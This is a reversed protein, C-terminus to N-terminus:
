LEYIPVSRRAKKSQADLIVQKKNFSGLATNMWIGLVAPVDTRAIHAV